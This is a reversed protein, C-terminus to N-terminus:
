AIGLLEKQKIKKLKFILNKKKLKAELRALPDEIFEPDINAKLDEIKDIFFTNFTDAIQQKDKILKDGEKLLWENEKRPPLVDDVVKCLENEDKAQEAINNNYDVSDKRM